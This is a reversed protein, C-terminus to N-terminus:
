SSYINGQISSDSLNTGNSLHCLCSLLTASLATFCLTTQRYDHHQVRHGPLVNEGKWEGGEGWWGEDRAEFQGGQM